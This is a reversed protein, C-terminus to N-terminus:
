ESDSEQIGHRYGKQIDDTIYNYKNIVSSTRRLLIVVKQTSQIKRNSGRRALVDTNCSASSIHNFVFKRTFLINHGIKLPM